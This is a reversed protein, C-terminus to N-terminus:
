WLRLQNVSRLCRCSINCCGANFVWHNIWHSLLKLVIYCVDLWENRFVFFCWSRLSGDSRSYINILTICLRLLFWLSYLILSCIRHIKYWWIDWLLLINLLNLGTLLSWLELSLWLCIYRHLFSWNIGNPMGGIHVILIATILHMSSTMVIALSSHVVLIGLVVHWVILLLVHSAIHWLVLLLLMGM